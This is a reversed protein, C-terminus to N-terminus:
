VMLTCPGGWHRFLICNQLRNLDSQYFMVGLLNSYRIGKFKKFCNVVRGMFRSRSFNFEAGMKGCLTVYNDELIYSDNFAYLKRVVSCWYPKQRNMSQDISVLTYVCLKNMIVSISAKYYKEGLRLYVHVKMM